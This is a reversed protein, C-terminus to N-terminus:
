EMKRGTRKKKKLDTFYAANYFTGNRYKENNKLVFIYAYLFQILIFFHFWTNRKNGFYDIPEQASKTGM